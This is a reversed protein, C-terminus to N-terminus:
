KPIPRRSMLAACTPLRWLNNADAADKYWSLRFTIPMIVTGMAHSSLNVPHWPVPRYQRALIILLSSFPFTVLTESARRAVESDHFRWALCHADSEEKIMGQRKRSAM